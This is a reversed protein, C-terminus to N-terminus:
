KNLFLNLAIDAEKIKIKASHISDILQQIANVMARKSRNLKTTLRPLSAASNRFKKLEGETSELVSLIKNIQRDNIQETDQNNTDFEISQQAAEILLNIGSNLRQGFLPTESEIRHTYDDMDAAAKAMLRKAVKLNKSDPGVSFSKMESERERMRNSINETAEVIRDTIEGLVSFEVESEEVLDLFGKEEEDSDNLLYKSSITKKEVSTSASQLEDSNAKWKEAFQLLHISIIDKFDEPKQFERYLAHKGLNSKFKQVRKIQATDIQSLPVPPPTDKFYFMVHVSDPNEDYRKKANLFEEETGSGANKTPTGFRHWMIGIFLDYDPIQSNIVSQPGEKGLGPIADIGRFLEFRIGLHRSWSTQNFVKIAEELSEREEDVDGPSAIFISLVIDKRAM